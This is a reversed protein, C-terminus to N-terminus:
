IIIRVIVLSIFILILVFINRVFRNKRELYKKQSLLQDYAERSSNLARGSEIQIIDLAQEQQNVCENIFQNMLFIKETGQNINKIRLNRDSARYVKTSTKSRISDKINEVRIKFEDNNFLNALSDVIRVELCSSPINQDLNQIKNELDNIKGEVDDM